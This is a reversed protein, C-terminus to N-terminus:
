ECFLVMIDSAEETFVLCFVSNYPGVVGVLSFREFGWVVWMKLDFNGSMGM